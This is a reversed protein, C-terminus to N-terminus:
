YSFHYRITRKYVEGAKLCNCEMFSNNPANPIDGPEIAIACGPSSFSNDPLHCRDIFGGSYVVISPADTYIEMKRDSRTDMLVLSIDNLPLVPHNLVFANNYGKGYQLQKSEPYQNVLEQLRTISTYDFPTDAVSSICEPIHRCDNQIYWDSNIQMFQNLGSRNFDGSLNFYSHNSLNFYTEKDSVAKYSLSLNNDNDLKIFSKVIRNGPYGDTNDRISLSLTLTIQNQETEVDTFEWNSHSFNQIGGHLNNNGDNKSLNYITEDIPLVANAIRGANPGLTAGVYLPHSIYDQWNELSLVINSIGNKSPCNIKKITSGYSLIHVSLESDNILIYEYIKENEIQGLLHVLYKM